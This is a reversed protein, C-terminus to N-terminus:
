SARRLNTTQWLEEWTLSVGDESALAKLRGFWKPPIGLSPWNSVTSVPIGLKDALTRRGGFKDIIASRAEPLTDM